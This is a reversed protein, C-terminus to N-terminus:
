ISVEQIRDIRISRWDAKDVDWVRIVNPNAKREVTDPKRPPLASEVLTANMVRVTGDSKVFRINVVGAHLGNKLLDLDIMM